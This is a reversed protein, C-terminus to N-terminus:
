FPGAAFRFAVQIEVTSTANDGGINGAAGVLAIQGLPLLWLVKAGNGPERLPQGQVAPVCRAIQGQVQRFKAMALKTADPTSDQFMLAVYMPRRPTGDTPTIFGRREQISGPILRLNAPLDVFSSQAQEILRGLGQCLNSQALASSAFLLLLPLSLALRRM